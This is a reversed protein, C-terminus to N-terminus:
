CLMINNQVIINNIIFEWVGDKLNSIGSDPFFFPSTMKKDNFFSSSSIFLKAIIIHMFFKVNPGQINQFITEKITLTESLIMM